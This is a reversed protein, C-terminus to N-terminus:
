NAAQRRRAARTNLGKRYGLKAPIPWERPLDCLRLHNMLWCRDFPIPGSQQMPYLRQWDQTSLRGNRRPDSYVDTEKRM